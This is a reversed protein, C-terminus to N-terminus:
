WTYRVTYTLVVEKDKAVQLTFLVRQPTLKEHKHSSATIEATVWRYLDEQVLVEIDETKHNRIRIDFSENIFRENYKAEFNTQRREGTVDFASGLRLRVVEDKSTHDVEDEGIFEMAKDEPDRKYVRMRGAPLPIGLGAAKENKLELYIDVKPNSQLGFNRDQNPGSSSGYSYMGRGGYYMFRKKVPVGSVPNFLEIQKESNNEVSAPRGLTYLHYEFFSKEEFQPRTREERARASQYGYQAMQARLQVPLVRRVDGAILKVRAEPYAAGSRNEITTWAALDLNKEDASITATYDAKWTMNGTHYTAQVLHEGKKKALLHWVLTPRTILGGPLASFRIERVNQPRSIVRIPNAPDGTKLVLNAADYSLLEGQVEGGEVVVALPRDIYKQLLKDANVLDYEFNQEQVFTGQPDTLSTVLVTTADIHAAVDQFRVVNLGEQFSLKRRVKVVGWGPLRQVWQGRAQDYYRYGEYGGGYQQYFRQLEESDRYVTLSVGEADSKPAEQAQPAAAAIAALLAAQLLSTRLM